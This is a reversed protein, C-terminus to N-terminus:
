KEETAHLSTKCTDLQMKLNVSGSHHVRGGSAKSAPSTSLNLTILTTPSSKTQAGHAATEGIDNADETLPSQVEGIGRSMALRFGPVEAGDSALLGDGDVGEWVCARLGFGGGHM